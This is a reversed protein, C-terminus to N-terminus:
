YNKAKQVCIRQIAGGLTAAEAELAVYTTAHTGLFVEPINPVGQTLPEFETLPGEATGIVGICRLATGVQGRSLPTYISSFARNREQGNQIKYEKIRKAAPM